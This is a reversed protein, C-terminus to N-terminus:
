RASATRNAHQAYVAELDQVVVVLKDGELTRPVTIPHCGGSAKNILASPFSQGCKRCVMEDGRQYYGMESHFCIECGDLALRYEGDSGRLAFFRIRQRGAPQHEFFVAKGPELEATAIRIRGSDATVLTAPTQPAATPRDGGSISQKLAFGVYGVVVAVLVTIVIWKVAGGRSPPQAFQQRKHERNRHRQRHKGM